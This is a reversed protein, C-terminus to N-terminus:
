KQAAIKCHLEGVPLQLIWAVHTKSQVLAIVGCVGPLPTLPNQYTSRPGAAEVRCIESPRPPAQTHTSTPPLSLLFSIAFSGQSFRSDWCTPTHPCAGNM